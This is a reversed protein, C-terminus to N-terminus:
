KLADMADAAMDAFFEDVFKKQERIMAKRLERISKPKPRRRRKKAPFYTPVGRVRKIRDKM